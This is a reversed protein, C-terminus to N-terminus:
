RRTAPRVDFPTGQLPDLEVRAGATVAFSAGCWRVTGAAIGVYSRKAGQTSENSQETVLPAGIPTAVPQLFFQARQGPEISCEGFAHHWRVTRQGGNFITARGHFEGPEDARSIVLIAPGEPAEDPTAPPVDAPVTLVSEDPLHLAYERGSLQVRLKTLTSFQLDVQKEDMAQVRVHTPGLSNVKGGGHLLLEFEGTQHVLIETGVVVSRLKDHFYLPIFADESPSKWWVREAQRLLLAQEPVYPLEPADNVRLWRPWGPPEESPLAFVPLAGAGSGLLSGIGGAGSQLPYSGFAGLGKPFATPFGNFPVARPQPAWQPTFGDRPAPEGQQGQPQQQQPAPDLDPHPILPAPATSGSRVQASVLSALALAVGLRRAHVGASCSSHTM